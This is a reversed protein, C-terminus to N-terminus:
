KVQIIGSSILLALLQKSADQWVQEKGPATPTNLAGKWSDLAANALKIKPDIDAKWKAQTAADSLKFTANYTEVNRNFTVLADYYRAQPTLETGQILANISGGCSMLSLVVMVLLGLQLARKM